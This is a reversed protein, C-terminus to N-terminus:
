LNKGRGKPRPGQLFTQFGETELSIIPAHAESSTVVADIVSVVVDDKGDFVTFGKEGRCDGRCHHPDGALDLSAIIDDELLDTGVPIVDM